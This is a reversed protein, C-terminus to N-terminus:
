DDSAVVVHVRRTGRDIVVFEHFGMDGTVPHDIEDEPRPNHLRYVNGSGLLRYVEHLRRQVEPPQRFEPDTWEQEDAWSQARFRRRDGLM